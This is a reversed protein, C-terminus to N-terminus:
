VFKRFVFIKMQIKKKISNEIKLSWVTKVGFSVISREKHEVCQMEYWFNTSKYKEKKMKTIYFEYRGGKGGMIITGVVWLWM